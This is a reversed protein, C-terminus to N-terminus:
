QQSKDSGTNEM